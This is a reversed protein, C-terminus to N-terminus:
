FWCFFVVALIFFCRTSCGDVGCGLCIGLGCVWGGRVRWGVVVVCCVLLGFFGVQVVGLSLRFGLEFWVVFLFLFFFWALLIICGYGVLVVAFCFGVWLFHLGRKVCFLLLCFCGLVVLFVV